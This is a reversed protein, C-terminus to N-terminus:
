KSFLYYFIFNNAQSIGVGFNMRDECFGFRDKYLIIGLIGYATWLSILLLTVNLLASMSEKLANVVLKLGKHNKIFRIPRLIRICRM